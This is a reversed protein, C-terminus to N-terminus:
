SLTNLYDALDQATAELAGVKLVQSFLQLSVGCLTAVSVAWCKVLVGALSLCYLKLLMEIGSNGLMGAIGSLVQM